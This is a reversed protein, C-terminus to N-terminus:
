DIGENNRDKGNDKGGESMIEIYKEELWMILILSFAVYLSLITLIIEM